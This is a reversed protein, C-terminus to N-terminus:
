EFGAKQKITEIKLSIWNYATIAGKDFRTINGSHLQLKIKNDIEDLIEKAFEEQGLQFLPHKEAEALTGKWILKKKLTKEKKM